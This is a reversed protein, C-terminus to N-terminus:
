LQDEWDSSGFTQRKLPHTSLMQPKIMLDAVKQLAIGRHNGGNPCACLGAGVIASTLALGM